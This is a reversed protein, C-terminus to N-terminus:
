PLILTNQKEVMCIPETAPPAWAYITRVFIYGDRVDQYRHEEGNHIYSNISYCTKNNFICVM